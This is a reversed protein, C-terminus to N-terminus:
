QGFGAFHGTEDAIVVHTKTGGVDGGVFFRKM